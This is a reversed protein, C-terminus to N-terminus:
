AADVDRAKIFQLTRVELLTEAHKMGLFIRALGQTFDGLRMM